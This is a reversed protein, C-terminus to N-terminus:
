HIIETNLKFQVNPELGNISVLCTQITINHLSEKNTSSLFGNTLIIVSSLVTGYYGRM